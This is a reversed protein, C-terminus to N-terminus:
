HCLATRVLESSNQRSKLCSIKHTFWYNPAMANLLSKSSCGLFKATVCYPNFKPPLCTDGGMPLNTFGIPWGGVIPGNHQGSVLLDNLLVSDIVYPATTEGAVQRMAYHDRTRNAMLQRFRELSRMRGGVIGANHVYPAHRLGQPGALFNALARSPIFKSLQLQHRLFKRAGDGYCIDSGIFLADPAYSACLSAPHRLPQVDTLDILLICADPSPRESQLVQAYAEWRADHAPLRFYNHQLHIPPDIFHLKVGLVDSMLAHHRSDHVVHVQLSGDHIGDAILPHMMVRQIARDLKKRDHKIPNYTTNTRTFFAGIILAPVRTQAQQDAALRPAPRIWSCFTQNGVISDLIRKPMVISREARWHATCHSRIRESSNEGAATDWGHPYALGM